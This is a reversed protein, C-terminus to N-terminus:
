MEFEDRVPAYKKEFRHYSVLGTIANLELTFKNRDENPIDSSV